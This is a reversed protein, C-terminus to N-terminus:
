ILAIVIVNYETSLVWKQGEANEGSVLHKKETKVANIKSTKERM